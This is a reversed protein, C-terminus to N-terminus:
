PLDVWWTILFESDLKLSHPISILMVKVYNTPIPLSLYFTFGIKTYNVEKKKLKIVTKTSLIQIKQRNFQLM